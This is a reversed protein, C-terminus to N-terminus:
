IELEFSAVNLAGDVTYFMLKNKTSDGVAWAAKGDFEFADDGPMLRVKGIDKIASPQIQVKDNSGSLTLSVAKTTVYTKKTQGIEAKWEEWLVIYKNTSIRVLKPHNVSTFEGTAKTKRSEYDVGFKTIWNVGSTVLTRETQGANIEDRCSCCNYTNWDWGDNAAKYKVTKTTGGSNIFNSNDVKMPCMSREGKSNLWNATEKDFDKKVHVLGIDRPSLINPARNKEEYNYGTMKYDWDREGAFLVLYGNDGFGKEVNGLETYTNNGFNTHSYVSFLRKTFPGPHGDWKQKETLNARQEATLTEDILPLVKEPSLKTLSVTVDHDRNEMIVFDSGDFIARQGFNHQNMSEFFARNTNKSKDQTDLIVQYPHSPYINTTILLSNGATVLRSTGEFFGNMLSKVGTTLSVKGPEFYKADWIAEPSGKFPIKTVQAKVLQNYDTWPESTFVYRNKSADKAFGAFTGLGEVETSEASNKKFGAGNKEYTNIRIKKGTEYLDQYAVDFSMASNKAVVIKPSGQLTGYYAPNKGPDTGLFNPYNPDFPVQLVANWAKGPNPKYGAVPTQDGFIEIEALEIQDSGKMQLRIYRGISGKTEIVKKQSIPSTVFESYTSSYSIKADDVMPKADLPQDTVIVAPKFSDTCCNDTRPHIVIKNIKYYNGLDVEFYANNDDPKTEVIRQDGLGGAIDGDIAKTAPGAIRYDWTNASTQYAKVGPNRALNIEQGYAESGSIGILTIACFFTLISFINIKM